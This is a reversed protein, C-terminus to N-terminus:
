ACVTDAYIALQGEGSIPLTVVVSVKSLKGRTLLALTSGSSSMLSVLNTFIARQLQRIFLGIVARM